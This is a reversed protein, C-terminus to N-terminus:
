GIPAHHFLNYLMSFMSMCRLLVSFAAMCPRALRVFIKLMIASFNQGLILIKPPVIKKMVCGRHENTRFIGLPGGSFIIKYM